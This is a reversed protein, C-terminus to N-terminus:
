EKLNGLKLFAEAKQKATAHITDIPMWDLEEKYVRWKNTNKISKEAEHMADLSNAYDPCKKLLCGEPDRETRPGCPTLCHTIGDSVITFGLRMHITINIQEDTM